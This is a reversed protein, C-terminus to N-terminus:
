PLVEGSKVSDEGPLKAPKRAPPPGFMQTPAVDLTYAVADATPVSTPLGLKTLVEETIDRTAGQVVSQKLVVLTNPGASEAIANRTRESLNLLAENASVHDAGSKLFASAVARQANAYRLVDFTVISPSGTMTPSAFRLFLVVATFAVLATVALFPALLKALEKTSPENM